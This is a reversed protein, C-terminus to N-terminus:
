GALKRFPIVKGGTLDKQIAQATSEAAAAVPNEALHAYRATTAAQTHGLMKGIVPLSQGSNAAYSAFAHRLDHIRWGSLGAEALIRQWPAKTNVIHGKDHRGPFCYENIRPLSALVARAAAPLHITKAGTKSDPLHALGHELDLYSWKLTTVEGCRAGTLLLVKFVGAAIPSLEGGAELKAISAGIAEVEAKGMFVTRKHEKFREVGFVPNTGRDRFGAVECWNFFKSLTALVRNGQYPTQRLSHHLGSVQRASVETIKLKGLAPLIHAAAQQEYCRVTGPKLKARVHEALFQELVSAVSRTAKEERLADAPDAGMTVLALKERALKRAQEVTVVPFSGLALRRKAAGRGKGARYVLYFSKEGTVGVRVLFGPLDDDWVEYRKGTAELAEVSKKTLRVAM